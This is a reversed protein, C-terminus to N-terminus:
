EQNNLTAVGFIIPSQPRHTSATDRQSMLPIDGCPSGDATAMCGGRTWPLKEQLKWQFARSDIARILFRESILYKSQVRAKRNTEKIERMLPNCHVQFLRAQQFLQIFVTEPYINNLFTSIERFFFRVGKPGEVHENAMARWLLTVEIIVDFFLLKNNMTQFLRFVTPSIRKASKRSM